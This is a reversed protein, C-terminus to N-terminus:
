RYDRRQFAPELAVAKLVEGLPKGEQAAAELTSLACGDKAENEVRGFSFRFYQRAFCSEFVGTQALLATAEHADTVDRQLPGVTLNTRTDVPRERRMTGSEDFLREHTRPRGLADFGETVYGLPNLMGRHCGACSSGPQETLEAVRERTTADESPEVPMAMANDPPPPITQCLLANRVHYGKMVPRTNGSASALFAVRTLLGSRESQVFEAPESTGDWAPQGYLAAVASSRAVHKRSTLVDKVGYGNRTLWLVLDGLEERMEAHLTPSPKDAGAFADFAAVGVRSDLPQVEDLRFWQGFFDRVAAETRPDAFLRDVQARYGAPTLLAGTAAAERLAADPPAQWFHYSLRAALAHADLPAPGGTALDWQPPAREVLYLADPSTFLLTLADSVAEASVPTVGGTVSANRFFDVDESSLPRRLVAAGFRGLFDRLCQEDNAANTDTACAGLLAGRRATTSVLARSLSTAVEWTADVHAQQVAQDLQTFGGHTDSPSGVRRDEPYRALPDSLASLITQVEGSPLGSERAWAEVTRLYQRRTLRRLPVEDPSEGAECRFLRESVSDHPSGAGGAGNPGDLNLEGAGYCGSLAFGCLVLPALLGRSSWSATVAPTRRRM